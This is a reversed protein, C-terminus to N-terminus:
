DISSDKCYEEGTQAESGAILIHTRNTARRSKLRHRQSTLQLLHFL